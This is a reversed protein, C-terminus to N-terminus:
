IQAELGKPTPAKNRHSTTKTSMKGILLKLSLNSKENKGQRILRQIKKLPIIYFRKKATWFFSSSLILCFFYTFLYFELGFLCSPELRRSYKIIKLYKLKRRSIPQSITTSEYLNLTNPQWPPNSVMAAKSKDLKACFLLCIISYLSKWAGMEITPM